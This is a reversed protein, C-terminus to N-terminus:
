AEVWNFRRPGCCIDTVGASDGHLEQFRDELHALPVSGKLSIGEVNLELDSFGPTKALITKALGWRNLYSVGRAWIFHTSLTDRPFERKDILLVKLGRRALLMATPAGAASGGIVVVDFSEM